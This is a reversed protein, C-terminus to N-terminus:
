RRIGLGVQLLLNGLGDQWPSARMAWSAYVDGVTEAAVSLGFRGLDTERNWHVWQADIAAFGRVSEWTHAFGLATFLQEDPTETRRSAEPIAVRLGLNGFMSYRRVQVAIAWGSELRWATSGGRAPVALRLRPGMSWNPNVSVARWRAGIWAADDVERRSSSGGSVLLGEIGVPGIMRAVGLAAYESWVRNANNVAVAAYATECVTPAWVPTSVIPSSSFWGACPGTEFRSTGAPMSVDKSQLTQSALVEGRSDVVEIRYPMILDEPVTALWTNGREHQLKLERVANRNLVRLRPRVRQEVETAMLGDFQVEAQLSTGSVSLEARIPLYALAWARSQEAGRQRWHLTNIKQKALELRAPVPGFRDNDIAVELAADASFRLVAYPSVELVGRDLRGHAGSISLKVLQVTRVPSSLGLFDERDIARVRVYYSGSPMKEARFATIDAPVEERAILARFESDKALEIRYTAARDVPKWSTAIVGEEGASLIVGQDSDPTWVPAAPLARPQTPPRAPLFRTGFREPVLVASGGSRVQASGEFVSVTTGKTRNRLVTDRSRATVDGGGKVSITPSKGGLAVIGAQLEGEELEVAASQQSQSSDRATGYIIVLTHAAMLIRSRDVFLLDARARDLTNVSHNRYLPMGAVAPGWSGGPPKERVDPALSLVTAPPVETVKEPVVLTVGDPLDQNNTCHVDNYRELLAAYASSGYLAISIDACSEGPLVTWQIVREPYGPTSQARSLSTLTFCAASLVLGAFRSHRKM